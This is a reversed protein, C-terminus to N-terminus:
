WVDPVPEPLDNSLLVGSRIIADHMADTLFVAHLDNGGNLIYVREDSQAERLAINVITFTRVTALEWINESALEAASYIEYEMGNVTIWYGEDTFREDTVKIRAGQMALFVIIKTLFTHIGGEALDEADTSYDRVTEEWGFLYNHILSEIKLEAVLNPAIYKYYGLRELTDLLERHDRPAHGNM